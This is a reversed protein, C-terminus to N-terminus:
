KKSEDPFNKEMMKRFRKTKRIKSFLPEARIAREDPFYNDLSRELWDLAEAAKGNQAALLAFGYEGWFGKRRLDLSKQFQEAAEVPRGLRLFLNGYRYHAEDKAPLDALDGSDYAIAIKFYAEAEAPRGQLRAVEGLWTWDPIFFPDPTADALLSQEFLEAAEALRNQRVRLKGFNLLVFCLPNQGIVESQAQRAFQEAKEFNGLRANAEVLLGLRLGREWKNSTQLSKELWDISEPLRRMQMLADPLIHYAWNSFDPNLEIARRLQKETEPLDGDVHFYFFGLGLYGNFLDPRLAIMKQTTELSKGYEKLAGQIFALQDLVSYNDPAIQNAKLVWEMAIDPRAQANVYEQSIELLPLAWTPAREAARGCWLVLSDTRYPTNHWYMHGIAYYPLPADPDLRIAELYSRKAAEHLSDLRAPDNEQGVFSTAIAYGEFYAKKGRLSPVLVHREGLLEVARALLAPYQSYKGPRYAWNNAEYPDNALLANVAQQIEDSIAAAYNRRLLGHLPRLSEEGILKQFYFEACDGAPAFFNGQALADEFARYLTSDPGFINGRMKTERLTSAIPLEAQPSASPHAIAFGREGMTVPTQQHPAADAVVRDELYRGIELLTVSGDANQDAGGSLGKTLYFSFVGHGGGWQPGELSFESAQCSMIKAENAFQRALAANTTQTGNVSSGALKGAHCADTVVVVRCGRDSLTSVYDQLYGLGLTGGSPYGIAPSNHCLLFGNQRLTTKEIDGHGSFYLAVLDGPAANEVLGDLAAIVNGSTARDDLLLAINEAAASGGASTKLWDAFMKADAAAYSLDPIQPSQYDSIGIVVARVTSSISSTPNASIPSAGKETQSFLPIAALALAFFLANKM